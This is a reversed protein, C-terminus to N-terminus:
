LALKSEGAGDQLDAGTNGSGLPRTNRNLRAAHAPQDTRHAHLGTSFALDPFFPGSQVRAQSPSLAQRETTRPRAMPAAALLSPVGFPAFTQLFSITTQM